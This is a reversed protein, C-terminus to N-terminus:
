LSKAVMRYHYGHIALAIAKPLKNPYRVLITALDFVMRQWDLLVATHSADTWAAMSFPPQTYDIIHADTKAPPTSLPARGLELHSDPAYSRTPLRTFRAQWHPFAVALVAAAVGAILWFGGLLSLPPAKKAVEQVAMAASLLLRPLRRRRSM